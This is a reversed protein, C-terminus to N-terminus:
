FRLLLGLLLRNHILQIQAFNFSILLLKLLLLLIWNNRMIWASARWSVGLMLGRIILQNWTYSGTRNFFRIFVIICTLLFFFLHLRQVDNSLVIFFHGTIFLLLRIFILWALFLIFFLLLILRLFFRLHDNVLIILTLVVILVRCSDLDVLSPCEADSIDFFTWNLM